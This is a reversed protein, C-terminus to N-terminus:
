TGGTTPRSRLRVCPSSCPPQPLACCHGLFRPSPSRKPEAALWGSRQWCQCCNAVRCDLGRGHNGAEGMGGLAGASVLLLQCAGQTCGLKQAPQCPTLFTLRLIPSTKGVVQNEFGAPRSPSPESRAAPRRLRGRLRTKGPGDPWHESRRGVGACRRARRAGHGDPYVAGDPRGSRTPWRRVGGRASRSAGIGIAPRCAVSPRVAGTDVLADAEYVRVESPRLNGRRVLGQDVANALSVKVRVEGM